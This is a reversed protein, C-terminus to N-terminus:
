KVLQGDSNRGERFLCNSLLKSQASYKVAIKREILNSNICHSINPPFKYGNSVECATRIRMHQECNSDAM